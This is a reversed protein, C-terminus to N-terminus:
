KVFSVELLDALAEAHLIGGRLAVVQRLRIRQDARRAAPQRLGDVPPVRRTGAAPDTAASRAFM